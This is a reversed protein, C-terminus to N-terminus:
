EAKFILSELNQVTESNNLKNKFTKEAIEFVRQYGRSSLKHTIAFHQATKQLNDKERLTFKAMKGKGIDFNLRFLIANSGDNGIQSYNKTGLFLGKSRIPSKSRSFKESTLGKRFSPLTKTDNIVLNKVISSDPQLRWQDKISKIQEVISSYNERKLGHDSLFKIATSNPDDHEKVNLVIVKKAM